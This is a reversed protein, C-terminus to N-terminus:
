DETEYTIGLAFMFFGYFITGIAVLIFYLHGVHDGIFDFAKDTNVIHQANELVGAKIYFFGIIGIIIGRSLYGIWAIFHILRKVKKEFHAIDLREKYGRSVGYFFQVFATALIVLGCSIIIWDGYDRGLIESVMQREAEPGGDEQTRSTGLLVTIAAYVILADAITSLAIGARKALGQVDSGYDYPDKVTEFGRWLIYSITGLLIVWIFIKGVFYDGLFILLSSEDAGGQKINLFSLIAIIGIASYIIGTAVCGYVPLFRIFAKKKKSHQM